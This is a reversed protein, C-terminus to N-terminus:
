FKSISEVFERLLAETQMTRISSDFLKKLNPTVKDYMDRLMKIRMENPATAYRDRIQTAGTVTEGDVIFELTPTSTVYLHGAVVPKPNKSLKQIVAREGNKKLSYGASDTDHSLFRDKDKESVALILITTKDNFSLAQKLAGLSYANKVKIFKSKPIGLFIALKKKQEFTFPNKQSVANDASAVYVNNAGYKGVLHDYSSKHGRHFPQFRGGFVVITKM